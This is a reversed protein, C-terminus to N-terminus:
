LLSFPAPAWVIPPLSQGQAFGPPTALAHTSPALRPPHGAVTTSTAGMHPKHGGRAQTSSRWKLWCESQQASSSSPHGARPQATPAPRSGEARSETTQLAGSCSGAGVPRSPGGPPERVPPPRRPVMRWPGTHAGQVPCPLSSSPCFHPCGRFGTARTQTTPM